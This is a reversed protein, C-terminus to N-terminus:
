GRVHETALNGGSLRKLLITRPRRTGTASRAHHMESHAGVCFIAPSCVKVNNICVRVSAVPSLKHLCYNRMSAVKQGRRQVGAPLFPNRSHAGRPHIIHPRKLYVGGGCGAWNLGSKRKRLRATTCHFNIGKPKRRVCIYFQATAFIQIASNLNPAQFRM